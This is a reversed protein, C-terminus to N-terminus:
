GTLGFHENLGLPENWWEDLMDKIEKMILVLFSSALSAQEFPWQTGNRWEIADSCAAVLHNILQQQSAQTVEMQFLDFCENGYTRVCFWGKGQERRPQLDALLVSEGLEEDSSELQTDHLRIEVAKSERYLRLVPVLLRDRVVSRDTTIVLVPKGRLVTSDEGRFKQIDDHMSM